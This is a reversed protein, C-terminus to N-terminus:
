LTHSWGASFMSRGATKELILSQLMGNVTVSPPMGKENFWLPGSIATAASCWGPQASRWMCYASTSMIPQTVPGSYLTRLIWMGTLIFIHNVHFCYKTRRDETLSSFTGSACISVHHSTKRTWDTKNSYSVSASQSWAAINKSCVWVEPGGNWSVAAERVNWSPSRNLRKRAQHKNWDVINPTEWFRNKRKQM